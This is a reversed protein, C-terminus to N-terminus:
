PQLYWHRLICHRIEAFHRFARLWTPAIAFGVKGFTAGFIKLTILSKIQEHGFVFDM